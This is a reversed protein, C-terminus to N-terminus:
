KNLKYLKKNEYMKKDSSKLVDDIDMMSSPDFVDYGIAYDLKIKGEATDIEINQKKLMDVDKYSFDQKTIIIFEDGGVRYVDSYAINEKLFTGITKIALDGYSHGLNDNIEKLNNLDVSIITIKTPNKRLFNMDNEFSYRNKLSTLSDISAIKEYIKITTSKEQIKFYINTLFYVQFCILLLVCSLIVLSFYRETGIFLIIFSSSIAFFIPLSLIFLSNREAYKEPRSFIIAIVVIISTIALIVYTIPAMEEFDAYKFITLALQIFYNLFVAIISLKVAIDFKPNLKNEILKLFPYSLFMMSIYEFFHILIKYDSLWYIFTKYGSFSYISLIFSLLAIYKIKKMQEINETLQENRFFSGFLIIFSIISLILLIFTVLIYFLENKILFINFNIRNGIYINNLVYRNSHKLKPTFHIKLLSSKSHSPLDILTYDYSGGNYILSDDPVKYEYFVDSGLSVTFDTSGTFLAVSKKHLSGFYKLDVYISFPEKTFVQKPTNVYEIRNDSYELKIHQTIKEVHVFDKTNSSNNKLQLSVILLFM